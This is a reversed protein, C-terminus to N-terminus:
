RGASGNKTKEIFGAVNAHLAKLDPEHAYVMHGSTYFHMEINGALLPQVPLQRLEYVAAFYPTALDYYGGNLQVKLNPNQKMAVALDTMVNTTGPMKQPAGPPQHQYDWNKDIDIIPKYTKKDGFKLVSRVYDNFASVYASSISASQPDYDAEKSMPDITPGAFRTDLRGTTIDSGLLTKEFEGGNVRLNAREIYDKALGTYAGLKAAIASKREPALTSGAALASAYETMAFTEVERLLPELEAPQSPLKHHYWATAAYTPLALAYPLDVGPNFQPQDASDDFNLIQSLLIVGNLDLSKESQLINALVASRTTGYSEGFLYKPSNWRNHLSLFEVIFNAFAHADQDVGYFAKEKDAGRLHGFGTGPADVFVLDSVDLLSYENDVVRYPAAPVHKDDPTVVRKPGFAGMHLWVTSSGPGGNFLFTVPRHTDERDGKDGKFYAVYSMSAEPPQPPPPGTREEKPLPPDDDMPDRVHVVLVGAEAQFALTRGGVTMSGQTTQREDHLYRPSEAPAPVASIKTESADSSSHAAAALAPSGVTMCLLFPWPLGRLKSNM